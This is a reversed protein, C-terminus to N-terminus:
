TLESQDTRWTGFYSVLSSFIIISFLVLFVGFMIQQSRTLSFYRKISKTKTM